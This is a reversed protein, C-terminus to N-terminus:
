HIHAKTLNAWNFGNEMLEVGLLLATITIHPLLYAPQRVGENDLSFVLPM